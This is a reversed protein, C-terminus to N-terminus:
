SLEATLKRKIGPCLLLVLSNYTNILTYCLPMMESDYPLLRSHLLTHSQITTLLFIKM